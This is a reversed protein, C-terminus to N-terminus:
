LNNVIAEVLPAAVLSAGAPLGIFLIARVVLTIAVSKVQPVDWAVKVWKKISATLEAKTM